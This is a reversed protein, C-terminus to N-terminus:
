RRNKSPSLPLEYLGKASAVAICQACEGDKLMERRSWADTWRGGVSRRGCMTRNVKAGDVYHGTVRSARGVPGSECHITTLSSMMARRRQKEQLEKRSVLEYTSLGLSSKEDAKRVQRAVDVAHQQQQLEFERRDNIIALQPDRLRRKPRDM